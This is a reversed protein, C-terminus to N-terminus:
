LCSAGLLRLGGRLYGLSAERLAALRAEMDAFDMELSVDEDGRTM